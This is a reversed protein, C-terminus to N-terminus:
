SLEAPDAVPPTGAELYSQLIVAAAQDDIAEGRKPRKQGGDARQRLVQQSTLREDWLVVSLPIKERLAQAFEVSRRAMPGYSGDMNRPLGVVVGRIPDLEHWQLIERALETVSAVIAVPRASLGLADCRAVGIRKEGPDVGVWIKSDSFEPGSNEASSNAM